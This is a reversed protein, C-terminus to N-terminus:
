FDAQLLIGISENSVEASKYASLLVFNAYNMLFSFLFSQSKDRKSRISRLASQKKLLKEIFNHKPSLGVAKFNIKTKEKKM